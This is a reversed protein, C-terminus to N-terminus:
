YYQFDDAALAYRNVNQLIVTNGAGDGIWTDAGVQASATFVQSFNQFVASSFLIADQTGAGAVFDTIVAVGWGATMVFYDSGADGTLIDYGGLGAIVNSQANGVIYNNGSNGYGYTQNGYLMVLNEVNVPLSYNVYAYVTDYNPDTLEYIIDGANDVEYFDTGAGGVMVDAGTGGLLVDVGDGGFITDNGGNGILWNGASNGILTDAGGGGIANEITVGVAICVNYTMGAMSSFGGWNLDITQAGSYGSGDISDNGGADWITFAHAGAWFNFPAGATANYGYVTDTTRTSMNAGYINQLAAIDFMMPTNSYGNYQAGTNSEDFYSMMTFEQTDQRFQANATYTISVGPAANYMGPHSLGIAHGIEHMLAHYSYSGFALSTTSVSGTNAWVDGAVSTSLTSGPYNAYAGAGDTASYYNGFRMTANDSYGDGDDVRQFRIGSFDSITQLMQTVATIEAASFMSFPAAVGQADYAPGNRRASWTVTVGTGALSSWSLDTDIVGAGMLYDWAPRPGVAVSLGYQGADSPGFAMADLYYTGSAAATFTIQSNLGRLGDDNSTILTTGDAYYLRLLTDQVNNVGTGVLSFTYTQGAVLSIRYFDHDGATLNGQVIDGMSLWYVTSANGAADTTEYVNPM